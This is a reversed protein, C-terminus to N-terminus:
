RSIGRTHEYVTLWHNSHRNPNEGKLYDPLSRPMSSTAHDAGPRAAQHPSFGRGVQQVCECGNRYSSTVFLLMPMSLALKPKKCGRDRLKKLKRRPPIPLRLSPRCRQFIILKQSRRSSGFRQRPMAQDPAPMTANKKEGVLPVMPGQGKNATRKSASLLVLSPFRTPAALGIVPFVRLSLPDEILPAVAQRRQRNGRGARVRRSGNGGLDSGIFRRHGLPALGARRRRPGGRRGIILGQGWTRSLQRLHQGLRLVRLHDTMHSNHDTEDLAARHAQLLDPLGQQFYPSLAGYTPPSLDIM